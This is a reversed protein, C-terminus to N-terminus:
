LDEEHLDLFEVVFQSEIGRIRSARSGELRALQALNDSMRFNFPISYYAGRTQPQSLERRRPSEWPQGLGAYLSESFRWHLEPTLILLAPCSKSSLHLLNTKELKGLCSNQAKSIRASTPSSSLMILTICNCDDHMDPHAKPAHAHIPPDSGITLGPFPQLSQMRQGFVLGANAPYCHAKPKCPQLCLRRPPAPAPALHM